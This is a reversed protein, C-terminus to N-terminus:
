APHPLAYGRWNTCELTIRFETIVESSLALAATSAHSTFFPPATGGNMQRVKAHVARGVGRGVPLHEIQERGSALPSRPDAGGLVWVRRDTSREAGVEHLTPV